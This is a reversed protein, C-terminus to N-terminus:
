AVPWDLRVWRNAGGAAFLAELVFSRAQVEGYAFLRAVVEGGPPQGPPPGSSAAMIVLLQPAAEGDTTDAGQVLPRLPGAGGGARARDRARGGRRRGSPPRWDVLRVTRLSRACGPSDGEGVLRKMASELAESWALLTQGTSWIEAETVDEPLARLLFYAKCRRLHWTSCRGHNRTSQLAHQRWGYLREPVKGVRLGVEALRMWTDVDIPWEPVDRYGCLREQLIERPYLGSQHLGPIEVFRNALLEAPDRLSNQWEVYKEMGESVAGFVIVGSCAGDWGAAQGAELAEYLKALRGPVERDDADMLAVLPASAAGLCLNQAAGQGTGGSSLLVFRHGAAALRGAVTAAAPPPSEEGPWPEQRVCPRPLLPTPAQNPALETPMAPEDLLEQGALVAVLEELWERSGDRSGDDCVLLELKPAASRSLDDLAWPLFPMADRCPVIVSVEPAAVVEPHADCAMAFGSLVIQSM